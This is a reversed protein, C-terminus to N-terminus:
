RVKSSVSVVPFFMGELNFDKFFGKVQLGNVTFTMQPVNLDLLVGVVDGKQFHGLSTRVQRPKGGLPFFLPLFPLLIFRSNNKSTFKM